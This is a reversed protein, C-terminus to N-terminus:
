RTGGRETADRFSALAQDWFADFYDRVQAIADPVVEYVRQRGSPRDVVLGARKLM